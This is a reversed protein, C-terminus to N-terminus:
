QEVKNLNTKLYEALLLVKDELDPISVVGRALEFRLSSDKTVAIVTPMVDLNLAKTIQPNNHTKFYKSQSEDKSIAEVNFGYKSAFSELHKELLLCHACNDERFVFLEIKTTLSKIIKRDNEKKESKFVNRGYINQPAKLNDALNPNLFNTMAFNRALVMAGGLMEQEKEKYLRIYNVNDPYRIMMHRLNELEEKFEENEHKAQEMEEKTPAHSNDLAAQKLDDINEQEKEEFWLWGRYSQNFFDSKAYACEPALQLLPLLIVLMLQNKM